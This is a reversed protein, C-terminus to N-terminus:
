TRLLISFISGESGQGRELRIPQWVCQQMYLEHMRKSVVLTEGDRCTATNRTIPTVRYKELGSSFRCMSPVM